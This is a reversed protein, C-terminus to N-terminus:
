GDRGPLLALLLALSMVFVGVGGVIALAVPLPGSWRGMGIAVSLLGLGIIMASLVLAVALRNAAGVLAKALRRLEEERTKIVLEGADLRQLVAGFQGPLAFTAEALDRTHGALEEVFIRPSLQSVIARRVYPRAVGFVDLNPDIQLGTGEAMILAKLLLAMPSPMHLHHRRTLFILEDGMGHFSLESLPRDIYREIFRQIDRRLVPTISLPSLINLRVLARVAGDSDRDILAVLLLLLQRTTEQDLMSVQGFDVAGVVEGPLAFFNGPHPDAHFFGHEFVEELILRMSHCALRGRDIGAADLAVVNNIKVGYLRESTLVRHSCYDWYITPIYVLRNGAFNRRFREAYSGERLYNLEYRLTVSFENALEVLDYHTGFITREQALEALDTIIALDTEILAAIDPRQVKVVVHEGTHLVAAHVQGLSAAALPALSFERFLQKIPRGLEAEIMAVALSSSFPPVTDQLKNLESLFDAPILDPRTSLLQGLKVFTPGLEVLALRLREAAGIPPSPPIRLILRRPLSLLNLLGLQEVIFGFGHHVLVQAIQRYRGLNRAQRAIPLM